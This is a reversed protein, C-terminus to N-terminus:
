YSPGKILTSGGVLLIQQALRRKSDLSTLSMISKTVAEHLPQRAHRLRGALSQGINSNRDAENAAQDAEALPQPGSATVEPKIQPWWLAM